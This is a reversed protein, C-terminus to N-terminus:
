ECSNRRPQRFFHRLAERPVGVRADLADHRATMDRRRAKPVVLVLGLPHHDHPTGGPQLELVVLHLQPRAVVDGDRGVGFVTDLPRRRVLWGRRAIAPNSSRLM